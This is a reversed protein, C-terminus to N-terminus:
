VVRLPYVNQQEAIFIYTHYSEGMKVKEMTRPSGAEPESARDGIYMRAM